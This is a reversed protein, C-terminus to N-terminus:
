VILCMLKRVEYSPNIKKLKKELEMNCHSLEDVIIDKEIENTKRLRELEEESEKIKEANIQLQEKLLKSEDLVSQLNDTKNNAEETKSELDQQLQSM